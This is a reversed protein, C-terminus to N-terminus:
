ARLCAAMVPVAGAMLPLLRALLGLLPSSFVMVLASMKASAWDICRFYDMSKDIPHQYTM